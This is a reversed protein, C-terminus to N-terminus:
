TLKLHIIRYYMTQIHVTHEGSWTLDGEIVNVGEKGEEVERGEGPVVM